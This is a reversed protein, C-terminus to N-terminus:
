LSPFEDQRLAFPRAGPASEGRARAGAGKERDKDKGSGRDKGAGGGSRVPGKRGVGGGEKGRRRGEVGRGGRTEGGPPRRGGGGERAPPAGKGEAPGGAGVGAGTAEAGKGTPTPHGPPAASRLCGQALELNRRATELCDQLEADTEGGDGAGESAAEELDPSRCLLSRAEPPRFPVGGGVWPAVAKKEAPAPSAGDAGAPVPREPHLSNLLGALPQLVEAEAGRGWVGGGAAAAEEEEEGPEDGLLLLEGAPPLLHPPPPVASLPARLSPPSRAQMTNRFFEGLMRRETEEPADGGGELAGECIGQLREAGLQLAMRIRHLSAKGVSRGLNNTQLLPDVVNLYKRRFGPTMAPVPPPRCGQADGGRGGSGGQSTSTSPTTAGGEAGPASEGEMGRSGGRARHPAPDVGGLGYRSTLDALLSAKLLPRADAGAPPEAAPGPGCDGGVAAEALPVVGGLAVGHSGWNFAAYYDLFRRLAELPTRTRSPFAQLVHLTLVELAYTSVLGHPAGLLRGEYYCWAKILLLSDKFLGRRGGRADAAQSVEEVFALTSLGNLTNVSLDFLLGDVLCKAVPVEASVVHVERVLGALPGPGAAAARLASAIRDAWDRSSAGGGPPVFVALDNDGDPLCTRLPVSGFPLV